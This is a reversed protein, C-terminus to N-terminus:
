TYGHLVWQLPRDKGHRPFAVATAGIICSSRVWCNACSTFVRGLVFAFTPGTRVSKGSLPTRGLVAHGASGAPSHVISAAKCHHTMM